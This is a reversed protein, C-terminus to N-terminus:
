SSVRTDIPRSIAVEPTLIVATSYVIFRELAGEVDHDRCIGKTLSRMRHITVLSHHLAGVIFNLRCIFEEPSLSPVHRRIFQGFRATVPHYERALLEEVFPIPEAMSRGILQVIHRGGSSEDACLAFVPQAFVRLIAELSILEGPSRRTLDELNALRTQNLPRIWRLIVAQYLLNKDAFHYNIAAL